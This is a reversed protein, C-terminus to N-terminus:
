LQAEPTRPADSQERPHLTFAGISGNWYLFRVGSDKRRAQERFRQLLEPGTAKPDIIVTTFGLRRIEQVAEPDPLRDALAVLAERGPVGFSGMCATTRRHHYFSLSIRSMGITFNDVGLDVPLEIIAGTNGLRELDRFFKISDKDAAISHFQWEYTRPLGLTTPRTVEMVAALVLAAAVAAWYRKSLRILAAAGMGALECAVLLVGASLCAIKRVSDLGPIMKALFLYANPIHISPNGTLLLLLANNFPGAAVLAVCLGGALLAWLADGGLNGATRRRGLILCCVILAIPFWGAFFGGSPLYAEWPTFIHESPARHLAGFRTQVELYPVFVVACALLVSAAVLALQAPRVTRFGYRALLWVAFPASVFVAALLMYMSEWIQLAVALSLGAADRWRGRTFLRRAFFLALVTWALNSDMPFQIGEMRIRHFGFLLGAVIGAAPVGTWETILLYMAMAGILSYLVLDVNYTLVPDGSALYAPIAVIAATLMAPGYVLSKEVPACHEANFYQLPRHVLTYAGRSVIWAEAVLDCHAITVWGGDTREAPAVLTAGARWVRAFTWTAALLFVLAALLAWRRRSM